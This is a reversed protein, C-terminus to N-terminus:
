SQTKNLDINQAIPIHKWKNVEDSKIGLYLTGTYNGNNESINLFFYFQGTHTLNTGENDGGSHYIVPVKNFDVAENFTVGTYFINESGFKCYNTSADSSNIWMTRRFRIGTTSYDGLIGNGPSVFTFTNGTLTMASKTALIMGGKGYLEVYGNSRSLELFAKSKPTSLRFYDDDSLTKNQEAHTTNWLGGTRVTIKAMQKTTTNNNSDVFNAKWQMTIIKSSQTPTDDTILEDDSTSSNPELNSYITVLGGESLKFNGSKIKIKDTWIKICPNTSTSDIVIGNTTEDGYETSTGLKLIGGSSIEVKQGSRIRVGTSDLIMVNSTGGAATRDSTGIFISSNAAIAINGDSAVTMGSQDMIITNNGSSNYIQVKGNAAVSFTGYAQIQLESVKINLHASVKGLSDKDTWFNFLPEPAITNGNTDKDLGQLNYGLCFGFTNADMRAENLLKTQIKVNNTNLTFHGLSGIYVEDKALWLYSGSFAEPGLGTATKWQGSEYYKKDYKGNADEKLYIIQPDMTSPWAKVFQYNTGFNIQGLMIKNPRLSFLSRTNGTGTAMGIYNSTIQLGTLQLPNNDNGPAPIQSSIIDEINLSGDNNVPLKDLNTGAALIIQDTTMELATASSNGLNAMGMLLHDKSLEVSAGTPRFNDVQPEQGNVEKLNTITGAYFRLKPPERGAVAAAGVGIFIGSDKDIQIASVDSDNSSRIDIGAGSKIVIGDKSALSIGNGHIDVRSTGGQSMTYTPYDVPSNQDDGAATGYEYETAVLHIGGGGRVGEFGDGIINSSAMNITTGGINVEKNGVINVTDGAMINIDKGSMMNITTENIIDIEGTEANFGFSQGSIESLKGEHTQTFGGSSTSYGTAVYTNNDETIWIDGPKFNTPQVNGTYVVPSLAAAVNERFGALISSNESTLNIMSNLSTAASGLIEGAENWMDQLQQQVVNPGDFYEDLFNTLIDQIEPDNVADDMTTPTLTIDVGQGSAMAGALGINHSNKHMEETEAVIKSFLDEFKTKYNKVEISDKEQHDLDLTLQSIYGFTNEFKLEFDNIMVLQALRTYLHELLSASWLSVTIDYSVKPYANEKLVKKADLYIDLDANSLSYYIRIPLLVNKARLFSEYTPKIQISKNSLDDVINYYNSTHYTAHDIKFISSFDVTKYLFEPKLTITYYTHYRTYDETKNDDLYIIDSDELHILDKLLRYNQVRTTAQEADISTHFEETEDAAEKQYYTKTFVYYDEYRKLTVTEKKNTDNESNGEKIPSDADYQLVIDDDGTKLKLSPVVIRPYVVDYDENLQIWAQNFSIGFTEEPKYVLEITSADDGGNAVDSAKPTNFSICGISGNKFLNVRQEDSLSEAGTLLLAPKVHAQGSSKGRLFILKATSGIAYYQCYQLSNHAVDPLQDEVSNFFFAMHQPGDLKNAGGAFVVDDDTYVLAEDEIGESDTREDIQDITNNITDGTMNKFISDDYSESSEDESMNFNEDVAEYDGTTANAAEQSKLWAKYISLFPILSDLTSQDVSHSESTEANKNFWLKTLDICPYYVKTREIGLEYYLKQEDDQEYPDWGFGAFQKAKTNTYLKMYGPNAAKKWNIDINESYNSGYDQYEDDPQWYSERLAAGMMHEFKNIITEKKDCEVDLEDSFQKLLSELYKQKTEYINLMQRDKTIKREWMEKIKTYYLSPKYKYTAYLYKPLEEDQDTTMSVSPKMKLLKDAKKIDTRTVVSNAGYRKIEWARYYHQSSKTKTPVIYTWANQIDESKIAVKFSGGSTKEAPNPVAQNDTKLYFIPTIQRVQHRDNGPSQPSAEVGKDNYYKLYYTNSINGNTYYKTENIIVYKGNYNTPMSNYNTNKKLCAIIKDIVGTKLHRDTAYLPKKQLGYTYYSGTKLRKYLGTIKDLNGYEDYAFTGEIPDTLFETKAANVRDQLSYENVDKKTIAPSGSIASNQKTKTHAGAGYFKIQGLASRLQLVCYVNYDELSINEAGEEKPPTSLYTSWEDLKDYNVITTEETTASNITPMSPASSTNKTVYYIFQAQKTYDQSSNKSAEGYRMCKIQEVCPGSTENIIQKTYIYFGDDAYNKSTDQADHNNDSPTQKYPKLYHWSLGDCFALCGDIDTGSVGNANSETSTTFKKTGNNRYVWGKSTNNAAPLVNTDATDGITGLLNAGTPATTQVQWKYTTTTNNNNDKNKEAICVFFEGVKVTYGSPYNATRAEYGKNKYDASATPLSDVTYTKGYSGKYTIPYDVWTYYPAHPRVEGSLEKNESSRGPLDLDPASTESNWGNMKNNILNNTNFPRYGIAYETKKVSTTQYHQYLKVSDEKVGMKDNKNFQVYYTDYQLDSSDKLLLLTDPNRWDREIYGDATGDANDLANIKSDLETIRELSEDISNKLTTVKSDIAVKLNAVSGHANQLPVIIDNAKRVTLEFDNIANYQEDSITGIEHLYDFNMIYDERTKNADCDMISIYGYYLDDADVSRVFMKTSVDTSDMERQIKSVSNPYMLTTVDKGEQLFNNYFIVTRGIINYNIDYTYEYRCFVEFKEAVDQTINYLNSENIDMMRCKERMEMYKAPKGNADWDIPVGEEYIKNDFVEKNYTMSSHSMRIKYYWITPNIIENNDIADDYSPIQAKSMWYQVNSIPKDAEKEDETAYDKDQGVKKAAWDNYENLFEDAALSRKYGVKGLEHFALGECEVHCVLNDQEHSEQVKVIIFEFTSDSKSVTNNWKDFIVKIKRMSILVNKDITNYWSPNEIHEGNYYIYMPIDFSLTQTGDINITMQGNQIQGQARAQPWVMAPTGSPQSVILPDATKLTTIYNDQLTWVSVEYNRYNNWDYLGDM